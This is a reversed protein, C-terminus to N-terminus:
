GVVRGRALPSDATLMVDHEICVSRLDDRHKSPHYEGQNTLIPTASGAMAVSLQPVPFNSVGVYRATGDTQLRNMAGM